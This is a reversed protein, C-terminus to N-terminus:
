LQQMSEERNLLPTCERSNGGLVYAGLTAGQTTSGIAQYSLHLWVSQVALDMINAIVKVNARVALDNKV